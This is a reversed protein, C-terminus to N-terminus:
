VAFGIQTRAGISKLFETYSVSNLDFGSLDSGVYEMVLLNTVMSVIFARPYTTHRAQEATYIPPDFPQLWLQIREPSTDQRVPPQYYTVDLPFGGQKHLYAKIEKRNSFEIEYTMGFLRKQTAEVADRELRRRLESFMFAGVGSRRQSREVAVYSVLGVGRNEIGIRSILHGYIAGIVKGGDTAALLHLTYGDQLLIKEKDNRPAQDRVRLRNRLCDPEELWKAPIDQALIDYAADYEPSSSSVDLIKM